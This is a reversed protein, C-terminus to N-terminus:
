HGRTTISKLRDINIGKASSKEKQEGSSVGLASLMVSRAVIPRGSANSIFSIRNASLWGRVKSPNKWGCLAVLDDYPVIDDSMSKITHLSEM